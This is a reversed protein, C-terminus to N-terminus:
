KLHMVLLLCDHEQLHNGNLDELRFSNWDIFPVTYFQHNHLMGQLSSWKTMFCQLHTSEVEFM